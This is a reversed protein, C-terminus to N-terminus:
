YAFYNQMKMENQLKYRRYGLYTLVTRLIQYEIITEGVKYLPMM